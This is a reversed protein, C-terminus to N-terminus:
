NPQNESKLFLSDKVMIIADTGDSYYGVIVSKAKFGLSEYLSQAAQNSIKVKLEYYVAGYNKLREMLETVLAIGIGQRRHNPHVAVSIIHGFLGKESEQIIGMAYGVIKKKKEAVLFSNEPNETLLQFHFSSYHDSPTFSSAEM